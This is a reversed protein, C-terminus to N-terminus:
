PFDRKGAPTKGTQKHKPKKNTNKNETESSADGRAQAQTRRIRRSPKETNNTNQQQESKSQTHHRVKTHHRDEQRPAAIEPPGAKQAATQRARTETATQLIRQLYEQRSEPAKSYKNVASHADEAKPIAHCSEFVSRGYVPVVTYPVQSQPLHLMRLPPCGVDDGDMADGSAPVEARPEDEWDSDDTSYGASSPRSDFSRRSDLSGESLMSDPTHIRQPRGSVGYGEDGSCDSNEPSVSSQLLARDRMRKVDPKAGRTRRRPHMILGAHPTHSKMQSISSGLTIGMSDELRKIREELGTMPLSRPVFRDVQPPELTAEMLTNELANAKSSRRKQLREPAMQATDLRNEFAFNRREAKPRKPPEKSSNKKGRPLGAPGTSMGSLTYVLFHAVLNNATAYAESIHKTTLLWAAGFLLAGILLIAPAVALGYLEPGLVPNNGQPAQNMASVAANLDLNM